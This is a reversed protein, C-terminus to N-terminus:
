SQNGKNRGAGLEVRGVLPHDQLGDVAANVDVEELALDLLDEQLERGVNGDGVALPVVHGDGPHARGAGEGEDGVSEDGVLALQVAFPQLHGLEAEDCEARGVVARLVVAAGAGLGAEM